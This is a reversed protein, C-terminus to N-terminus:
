TRVKVFAQLQSNVGLRRYLARLREKAADESIRLDGAVSRVTAGPEALRNLVDLEAITARTM